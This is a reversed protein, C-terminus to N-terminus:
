TPIPPLWSGAGLGWVRGPPGSCSEPVRALVPPVQLGGVWEQGGWSSPRNVPLGRLTPPSCMPPHLRSPAPSAHRSEKPSPGASALRWRSTVTHRLSLPFLLGEVHRLLLAHSSHPKHPPWLSPLDTFPDSTEPSGSHTMPRCSQRSALLAQPWRSRVIAVCYRDVM